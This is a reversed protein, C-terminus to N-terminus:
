DREHNGETPFQTQIHSWGLFTMLSVGNLSAGNHNIFDALLEDLCVHLESHRQKHEAETM